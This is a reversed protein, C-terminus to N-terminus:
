DTISGNLAIVLAFFADHYALRASCMARRKTPDTWVDPENYIEWWRNWADTRAQALRQLDAASLMVKGEDEAAFRNVSSVAFNQPPVATSPHEQM